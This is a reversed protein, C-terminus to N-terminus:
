NVVSYMLFAKNGAAVNSGKFSMKFAAPCGKESSKEVFILLHIKSLICKCVSFDYTIINNHTM